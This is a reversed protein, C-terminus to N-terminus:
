QLQSHPVQRQYVRALEDADEAAALLERVQALRDQPPDVNPTFRGTSFYAETEIRRALERLDQAKRRHSFALHRAQDQPVFPAQSASRGTSRHSFDSACASAFVMAGLLSLHIASKMM